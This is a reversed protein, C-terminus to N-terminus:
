ANAHDKMKALEQEEREIAGETHAVAPEDLLSTIQTM